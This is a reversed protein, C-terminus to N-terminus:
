TDEVFQPVNLLIWKKLQSKFQGIKWCKRIQVPLSNWQAAGRYCYSNKALTLNTNPVIIREARNDRSMINSLYEPESCGRIRYTSLASHYFVLQHVTMWGLQDFIEKRSTRQPAHTVLRAAKNQMIQLAEMDVKDCGGFVPLCYVLVSTFMGETIRKRLTYPLINRLHSLGTLRKKLKDTLEGVQKHWKLNPEIHVGLLTEVKDASEELVCGDMQVVVTSAQSKLRAGTGVTMLHTKSANLKLKNGKMWDTVIECNATMTTGIEETTDGAVTMTTDDAYADVDCNLSFPLDNYFILFLLPGLNSGQPVGVTCSLFDSLAHDIWVAQYRNTLYSEVWSLIDDDFGYGKLKQLLLVPDVLDFAASLDLLVVGSLQGDSAAM